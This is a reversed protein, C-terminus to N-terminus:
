SSARRRLLTQPGMQPGLEARTGPGGPGLEATGLWYAIAQGRTTVHLKAFIRNIHNKVTKPALFLGAAIEANGRGAALLQMVELERASLLEAESPLAASRLAAAPLVEPAASPVPLLHTRLGDDDDLGDNLCDDPSDARHDDPAGGLRDPDSSPAPEPDGPDLLVRTAPASFVSGGGAAARISQVIGTEDFTGYVLYGRAGASLATRITADEDSSTLMLVCCFATLEALVELGSSGPMRVDLLVVDPRHRLALELAQRGDVAEAVLRVCPDAELLQRLGMRIVANDDAILVSVCDGM